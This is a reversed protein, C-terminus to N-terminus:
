PGHYFMNFHRFYSQYIEESFCCLIIKEFHDNDKVFDKIIKIAIAAALEIPYGYIGCSIAPFAITKLNNQKALNLSNRYCSALLEAEHNKGGHWIPGVTHIVYKAPLEYGQTIKAEGTKCAGLRLCEELLKPGAAHHIAGCVGAGASLSPNAANVIAEVALQTIDGKLIEIAM